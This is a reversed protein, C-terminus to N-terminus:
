SSDSLVLGHGHSSSQLRDSVVLPATQRPLPSLLPGPARPWPRKCGSQAGMEVFPDWGLIGSRFIWAGLFLRLVTVQTGLMINRDVRAGYFYYEVICIPGIHSVSLRWVFSTRMGIFTASSRSSIRSTRPMARWSGISCGKRSQM